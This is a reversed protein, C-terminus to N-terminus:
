SKQGSEPHELGKQQMESELKTQGMEAGGRM